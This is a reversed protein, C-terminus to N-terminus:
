TGVLRGRAVVPSQGTRRRRRLTIRRGGSTPADCVVSGGPRSVRGHAQQGASSGDSLGAALAPVPVGHEREAAQVPLHRRAAYPNQPLGPALNGPAVRGWTVPWVRASSRVAPSLSSCNTTVVPSPRRNPETPASWTLPRTRDSHDRRHNCQHRSATPHGSRRPIPQSRYSATAALCVPPDAAVRRTAVPPQDILTASPQM